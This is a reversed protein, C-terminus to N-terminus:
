LSLPSILIELRRNSERGEPTDNGALPDTQGAGQSQLRQAAIGQQQLLNLVALARAATFAYAAAPDDLSDGYVIVTLKTGTAVELVQTVQALLYSGEPRIVPSDNTFIATAPVRV